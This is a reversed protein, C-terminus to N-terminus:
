RELNEKLHTPINKSKLDYEEKTGYLRDLDAITFKLPLIESSIPIILHNQKLENSVSNYIDTIRQEYLNPHQSESLLIRRLKRTIESILSPNRLVLHQGQSTYEGEVYKDIM